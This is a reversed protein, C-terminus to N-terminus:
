DSYHGDEFPSLLITWHADPENVNRVSVKNVCAGQKFPVPTEIQLIVKVRTNHFLTAVSPTKQLFNWPSGVGFLIGALNFFDRPLNLTSDSWFSPGFGDRIKNKIKPGMYSKPVQVTIYVESVRPYRSEVKAVWENAWLEKFLKNNRCEICAM